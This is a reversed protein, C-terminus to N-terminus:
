EVVACLGQCLPSSVHEMADADDDMRSPLKDPRAGLFLRRVTREFTKLAADSDEHTGLARFM